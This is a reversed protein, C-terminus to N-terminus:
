AVELKFVYTGLTDARKEPKLVEMSQLVDEFTLADIVHFGLPEFFEEPSTGKRWCNKWEEGVVDRLLRALRSNKQKEEGVINMVFKTGPAFEAVTRLTEALAEPTLYSAVGELLIVTNPNTKDFKSEVLKTAFSESSFDCSVFTVYKDIQESFLEPNEKALSLIIAKKQKQTAPADVEFFKVDEGLARKLRYARADLGAGLLVVQQPKNELIFNDLFWTRAAMYQVNGMSYRRGLISRTSIMLFVLLKADWDLFYFALPDHCWGVATGVARSICVLEATFSPKNDQLIRSKGSRGLTLLNRRYLLVFGLLAIGGVIVVIFTAIFSTLLGM